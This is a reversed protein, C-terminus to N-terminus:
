KKDNGGIASPTMGPPGPPAPTTGVQNSPQSAGNQKDMWPPVGPTYKVQGQDLDGGGGAFKLIAFGALAVLVVVAVILVPTKVESKM